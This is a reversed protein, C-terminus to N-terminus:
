TTQGKKEHYAIRATLIELYHTMATIQGYLREREEHDLSNFEAGTVFKSLAELRAALEKRETRMRDLFTETAAEVVVDDVFDDVNDKHKRTM